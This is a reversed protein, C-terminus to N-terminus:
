FANLIKVATYHLSDTAAPIDWDDKDRLQVYNSISRIQACPIGEELCGYLFAAGEMTEVDPRYLKRLHAISDENGHITNVTIGTVKKLTNIMPNETVSINILKGEVFPYGIADELEMDRMPIFKNGDEAGLESLQDEYVNVM